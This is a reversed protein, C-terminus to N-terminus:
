ESIDDILEIDLAHLFSIAEPLSFKAKSIKNTQTDIFYNTAGVFNAKTLNTNFFRANRLDTGAFDAEMLNCESFDTEDANCNLFKAKKLPKGYFSCFSIRSDLFQISFPADADLWMIGLAKSNKVTVNSFSTDKIKMLSIDCDDFVCKDFSSDEFTCGKLNCKYFTCNQFVRGELHKGEYTINEFRKNKHAIFDENQQM